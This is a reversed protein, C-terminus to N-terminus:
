AFPLMINIQNLLLLISNSSKLTLYRPYVHCMLYPYVPALMDDNENQM